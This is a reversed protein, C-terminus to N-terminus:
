PLFRGFVVRPYRRVFSRKFKHGNKCTYERIDTMCYKNKYTMVVNFSVKDNKCEPCVEHEIARLMVM